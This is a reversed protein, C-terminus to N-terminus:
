PADAASLEAVAAAFLDRRQDFWAAVRRPREAHGELLMRVFAPDGQAALDEIAAAPGDTFLAM